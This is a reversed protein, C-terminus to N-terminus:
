QNWSARSETYTTEVHNLLNEMSDQPWELIPQWNEAYM